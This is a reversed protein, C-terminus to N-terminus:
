APYNMSALMILFSSVNRIDDYDDMTLEALRARLAVPSAPLERSITLDLGMPSTTFTGHKNVLTITDM